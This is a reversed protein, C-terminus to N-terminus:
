KNFGQAIGQYFLSFSIAGPDKHGISKEKLSKARGFGAVMESTRDAGDAAAKAMEIALESIEKENHDLVQTAPYIADIMTKQGPVAKSISYFNEYGKNLMNVFLDRDNNHELAAGYGMGEFFAGWLPGASGGNINMMDWSLEDLAESLEIGENLEMLRSKVLRAIKGMTVGHDGDGIVSDLKTLLEINREILDMGPLVMQKLLSLSM